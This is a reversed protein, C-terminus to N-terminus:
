LLFNFYSAQMIVVKYARIWAINTRQLYKFIKICRVIINQEMEKSMNLGDVGVVQLQKAGCWVRLLLKSIIVQIRPLEGTGNKRAWM